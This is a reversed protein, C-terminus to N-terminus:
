SNRVPASPYVSTNFILLALYQRVTLGLLYHQSEVFFGVIFVSLSWLVVFILFLFGIFPKEGQPYFNRAKKKIFYLILGLFILEYIQVPHRRGLMTTLTVGWPLNTVRGWGVGGLFEGASLIMAVVIIALVSLDLFRFGSWKHRKIWYYFVIGGGFLGGWFNLGGYWFVALFKFINLGFESFNAVVYFLRAGFIIGLVVLIVLDLSKEPVFEERTERWLFFTGVLLAIALFLGYSYITIPGLHVLVPFM